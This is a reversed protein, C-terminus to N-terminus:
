RRVYITGAPGDVLRGVEVGPLREGRSAPLAILLGGSTTPDCLLQRSWEEVDEDFRAFSQAWAANRQAGGSSGHGAELIRQVGGLAPLESAYLEAALGSERCLNHLHGLLGFGTVDTMAHAGAQRAADAAGANLGVMTAVARLLLAPNAHGRKAAAVIAGTGLPKTLVLVDGPLGGANTILDGPDVIGTVAMGYKPESDEISHGGVVAMGAQAAVDSGGRLIARLTEPGLQELPFAVLNLACLPKAGMAYIDSLANAAAIRGFDYPDDVLPTFFDVSQVLALREDIRFVGADDSTASGVLVREDSAVPLARVIPLVDAAALKCGCGAGHALSTLTATAACM